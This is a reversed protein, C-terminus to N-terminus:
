FKTHGVQNDEIVDCNRLTDASALIHRKQFIFYFIGKASTSDKM